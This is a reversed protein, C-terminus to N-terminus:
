FHYNAWILHFYTKYYTELHLVSLLKEHIRSWHVLDTPMWLWLKSVPYCCYGIELNLQGIQFELISRTWDQSQGSELITVLMICHKHTNFLFYFDFTSRYQFLFFTKLKLLIEMTFKCDLSVNQILIPCLALVRATCYLTHTNWNEWPHDTCVCCTFVFILHVYKQCFKSM